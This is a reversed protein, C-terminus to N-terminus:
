TPQSISIIINKKYLIVIGLKLFYSNMPIVIGSLFFFFFM